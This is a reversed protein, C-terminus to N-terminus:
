APTVTNSTKTVTGSSNTAQVETTITTGAPLDVDPANGTPLTAPFTLTYPSNGTMTVYGPDASQLDSVAGAADHITYLRVSSSPKTPGIVYKGANASWTGTTSRLYILKGPVDVKGVEGSAANDNQNVLDGSAFKVLDKDTKLHLIHQGSTIGYIYITYPGGPLVRITGATTVNIVTRSVKANVPSPEVAFTAVGTNIADTPDIVLTRLNTGLNDGSYFVYCGVAFDLYVTPASSIFARQYTEGSLLTTAALYNNAGQWVGKQYIEACVDTCSIGAYTGSSPKYDVVGLFPDLAPDRLGQVGFSSTDFAPSLRANLTARGTVHEYQIIEDSIAQSKLSGEVWAKLGKTSAPIGDETMTVTTAFTGSTFRGAEPSDALTAGGIVPAKSQSNKWDLFTCKYDTGGRNILLLDTDQVTSMDAPASYVAAARQVLVKDTPQVTSM